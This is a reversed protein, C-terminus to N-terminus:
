LFTSIEFRNFSESADTLRINCLFLCFRLREGKFLLPLGRVVVGLVSQLILCSQWFCGNMEEDSIFLDICSSILTVVLVTLFRICLPKLKRGAFRQLFGQNCWSQGAFAQIKSGSCLSSLLLSASLSTKQRIWRRVTQKRCVRRECVVHIKVLPSM